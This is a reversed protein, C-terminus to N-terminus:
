DRWLPAERPDALPRVRLAPLADVRSVPRCSRNRRRPGTATRTGNYHRRRPTPPQITGTPHMRLMAGRCSVDKLQENARRWDLRKGCSGRSPSGIAAATRQSSPASKSCRSSASCVDAACRRPRCSGRGDLRRHRAAAEVSRAGHRGRRTRGAAREVQGCGAWCGPLPRTSLRPHQQYASSCHSSRHFSRM